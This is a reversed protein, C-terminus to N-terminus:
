APNQPMAPVGEALDFWNQKTDCWVHFQPQFTSNDDLTGTKLYVIDPSSQVASYIPSGCDACFFRKVTNGSSTDPDIYLKPEGSIHLENVPVSGVNLLCQRSPAPLKQLPLGRDHRTPQRYQLQHRRLPVPRYRVYTEGRIM